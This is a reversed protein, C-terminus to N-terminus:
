DGNLFKNCSEIVNQQNNKYDNEWVVKVDFGRNELIKVRLADHKRKEFVTLNDCPLVYNDDYFDPNGHWFDGYFEIIKNGLLFDPRIFMKKLIRYEDVTLSILEENDGFKAHNCDLKTFLDFSIMSYSKSLKSQHENWRNTGEVNGYLRIYNKLTYKERQNVQMDSFAEVGKQEGFLEIKRELTLNGANHNCRNKFKEKGVLLGYKAIYGKESNAFSIKERYEKWKRLGEEVGYKEILRNESITCRLKKEEFRRLGEIEGFRLIHIEKSSADTKLHALLRDFRDLYNDDVGYKVWYALNKKRDDTVTRKELVETVKLEMERSIITDDLIHKVTKRNKWRDFLTNCQKINNVGYKEINTREVKYKIKKSAFGLGGCSKVTSEKRKLKIKESSYMCGRSCFEDYGEKPSRFKTSKGCECINPTMSLRLCYLRESITSCDVLYSTMNVLEMVLERNKVKNKNYPKSIGSPYFEKLIEESTM